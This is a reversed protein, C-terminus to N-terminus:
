WPGYGVSVPADYYSQSNAPNIATIAIYKSTGDFKTWDVHGDEYLFNDGTPVGGRGAHNSGPGNYHNAPVDVIWPTSTGSTEVSDGMVPANRYQKGIKTRSFWSGYAPAYSLGTLLRAPMWHYGILGTQGTVAEYQRHWTDTPCYIVDNQSRQSGTSGPRNRTLYGNFFNTFNPSVYGTGNNAPPNNINDPFYDQFDGTYMVTAIGWQKLNSACQAQYAKAKAKALAPLLMAALIAIIAIVVLLEILTFGGGIEIRPGPNSKQCVNM